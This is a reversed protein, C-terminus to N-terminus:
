DRLQHKISNKGSSKVQYMLSDVQEIATDVSDPVNRFTVVGFSFGVDFSNVKVAELLKQRV